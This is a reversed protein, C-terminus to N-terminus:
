FIVVAVKVEFFLSLLSLSLHCFYSFHFDRRCARGFHWLESFLDQALIQSLLTTFLLRLLLAINRSLPQKFSSFNSFHSDTNPFDSFM